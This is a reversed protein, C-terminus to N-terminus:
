KNWLKKGYGTVSKLNGNDFEIVIPSPSIQEYFCTTILGDISHAVRDPPGFILDVENETMGKKLQTILLDINAKRWKERGYGDIKILKGHVDFVLHTAQSYFLTYSLYEKDEIIQTSDPNGFLAEVKTKPMGFKICPLLTDVYSMKGGKQYFKRDSETITKFDISAQAVAKGYEREIQAYTPESPKESRQKECTVCLVVLVLLLVLSIVTYKTQM